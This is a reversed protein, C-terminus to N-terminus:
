ILGPLIPPRMWARSKNEKRGNKEYISRKRKSTRQIHTLCRWMMCRRATQDWAPSKKPKANNSLRKWKPPRTPVSPHGFNSPTKGTPAPPQGLPTAKPRSNTSPKQLSEGNSRCAQRTRLPVKEGGGTSGRKEKKVKGYNTQTLLFLSCGRAPVLTYRGLGVVLFFSKDPVLHTLVRTPSHMRSSGQNKMVM